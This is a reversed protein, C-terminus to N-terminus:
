AIALAYVAFAILGHVASWNSLADHVAHMALKHSLYLSYSIGAIWGAGPTRWRGMWGTSGAAAAVLQALGTALLPFGFVSAAFATKDRFLWISPRGVLATPVGPDDGAARRGALRGTADLDPLLHKGALGQWAARRLRAAGFRGAGRARRRRRGAGAVFATGAVLGAAPVASLLTGGRVAVVCALVGPQAPLRDAPEAHVHPVAVGAAPGADRALRPVACVGGARRPVGAPHPLRSAPLVRRLAAARRPEATGAVAPRDPLRQARLVPGRGDLRLRRRTPVVAHRARRDDVLPVADGLRHRHRAAPRPRAPTAHTERHIDARREHTTACHACRM